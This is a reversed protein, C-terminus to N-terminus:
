EVSGVDPGGQRRGTGARDIMDQPAFVMRLANKAHERCRDECIALLKSDIVNRNDDLAESMHVFIELISVGTMAQVMQLGFSADKACSEDIPEPGPMGAALVMNAGSDISRRAVAALDKFGPVTYRELKIDPAYSSALLEDCIIGGMNVTAFTTDVVVFNALGNATISETM